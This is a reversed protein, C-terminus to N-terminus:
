SFRSFFTLVDFVFLLFDLSEMLLLYLLRQQFTFIVLSNFSIFCLVPSGGGLGGVGLGNCERECLRGRPHSTHPHQSPLFVFQRNKVAGSGQEQMVAVAVLWRRQVQRTRLLCRINRFGGKVESGSRGVNLGGGETKRTFSATCLDVEVYVSCLRRHIVSTSIWSNHIWWVILPLSEPTLALACWQM